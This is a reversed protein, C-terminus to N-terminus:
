MEIFLDKLLSELESKLDNLNHNNLTERYNKEVIEETLEINTLCELIKQSLDFADNAKFTLGNYGNKLFEQTNEFDSVIVPKRYVGAEYIIRSQHPKTSPFVVLDSALYYKSVDRDTDYFDIQNLLNHKVILKSVRFEYDINLIVKVLRKWSKIYFINTQFSSKDYQLFILRINKPLYRLANVIIHAGKLDVMGGAYLIYKISKNFYMNSLGSIEQSCNVKDTIIITKKLPLKAEDRDFKSIFVVKDFYKSLHKKIYNTRIGFLGHIFMERHFCVTIYGHKKLKKGLYFLTMSNLFVIDPNLSNILDILKKRNRIISSVNRIMRLGLAFNSSGSFHAFIEVKDVCIVNVGMDLLINKMTNPDAPCIVSINIQLQKLSYIIDILSVGAGGLYGSHHVLVLNIRRM